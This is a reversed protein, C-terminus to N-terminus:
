LYHARASIVGTYHMAEVLAPRFIFYHRISAYHADIDRFLLLTVIDNFHAIILCNYNVLHCMDSDNITTGNLVRRQGVIHLISPLNCSSSDERWIYKSVVSHFLAASGAHFSIHVDILFGIDIFM